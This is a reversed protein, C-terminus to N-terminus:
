KVVELTACKECLIEEKYTRFLRTPPYKHEEQEEQYIIRYRKDLEVGCINCKTIKETRDEPTRKTNM